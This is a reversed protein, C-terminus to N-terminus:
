LMVSLLPQMMYPAAVITKLLFRCAGGAFLFIEFFCNNSM